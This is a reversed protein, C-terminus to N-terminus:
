VTVAEVKLLFNILYFLGYVLFRVLIDSYLLIKSRQAVPMKQRLLKGNTLWFNGWVFGQWISRFLHFLIYSVNCCFSVFHSAYFNWEEQWPHWHFNWFPICVNKHLVVLSFLQFLLRVSYYLQPKPSVFIM